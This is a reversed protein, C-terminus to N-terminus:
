RRRRAMRRALAPVPTHLHAYLMGFLVGIGAAYIGGQVLNMNLFPSTGASPNSTTASGMAATGANIAQEYYTAMQVVLQSANDADSQATSTTSIAALAANLLWAKQTLPQTVNPAPGLDIEPGIGTAGASGAAQYSSIANQYEGSGYYTDGAQIVSIMQNQFDTAAQVYPGTTPATFSPLATTAGMGLRMPPLRGMGGRRRKKSACPGCHGGCHCPTKGIGVFEAEPAGQLGIMSPNQPDMRFERAAPYKQGCALNTSPDMAFWTGDDNQAELLVHEQDDAGFTQKIVRVPVGVSMCCSGLLIVMDDCNSVTVDHEPLYVYHDSTSIDWCQTQRVNRDISKVTLAKEGKQASEDRVGLRWMPHKGAGGHQEPTLMRVSCSRGFMRHLVRVQVALLRSTTSYTRGGGNTNATSDAMVGRLYGDATKESLNLTELAKFRAYSGFRAIRQAWEPDKVTIYRKHWHTDVGLRKCITEVERKQAEKRMGDRGAIKFRSEEDAWGDAIALGEVYARDPDYESAGFSIREPQPLTEGERLDSVSVRRFNENRLTPRACTLCDAGKGHKCVGVYVKHDPTLHVTSGNNLHIADVPLEGKFKVQTVTSWANLGWIQDGPKIKEIPVLEHDGRLLLTGEPFCDGGRICLGERLCLMAEASKVLEVGPPDSTYVTVARIADLLVSAKKFNSANGTPPPGDRGDVGAARLQDMSWGMVAKSLAGERIHQAIAQLSMHVGAVGAPYERRVV